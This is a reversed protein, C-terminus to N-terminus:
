IPHAQSCDCSLYGKVPVWARTKAGAELASAERCDEYGVTERQCLLQTLQAAAQAASSKGSGRLYKRSSSWSRKKTSRHHPHSHTPLFKTGDEEM